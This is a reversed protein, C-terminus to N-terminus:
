QAITYKGQTIQELTYPIYVIDYGGDFPNEELLFGIRGDQQLYMTSYASLTHSVQFPEWRDQAFSPLTEQGDNMEKYFISVNNRGATPISHLAIKVPTKDQNRIANVFLIEGNTGSDGSFLGKEQTSWSGKGENRANIDKDYSFFNFIRHGRARSSLVVTGDPLEECKPEDGGLAPRADVGGLIHWTKGFDDSYIVRNGEKRTCLPAYIRYYDGAKIISSQLLKGAGIFLGPIEGKFLTHYMYETYDEPQSWEWEKTSPNFVGVTRVMRLPDEPTSYTYFKRGACAMMLIKNSSRDAVVAADGYTNNPQFLPSDKPTTDHQLITYTNSWSYGNDKSVRGIIDLDGFGIDHKAFRYDSIAWLDGNIAQTLAPIRTPIGVSDGSYFIYRAGHDTYSFSTRIVQNQNLSSYTLHSPSSTKSDTIRTLTFDRYPLPTIKINGRPFLTKIHHNPAIRLRAFAGGPLEIHYIGAYKVTPSYPFTFNPTMSKFSIEVSADTFFWRSNKSGQEHCRIEGSNKGYSNAFLPNEGTKHPVILYGAHKESQIHTSDILWTTAKNAEVLTLHAGESPFESVTVAFKNGLAKNYIKFKSANGVLCWLQREDTLDIPTNTIGLGYSQHQQNLQWVYEKAGSFNIRLWKEGYKTSFPSDNFGYTLAMPSTNNLATISNKSGCATTILLCATLLTFILRKTM